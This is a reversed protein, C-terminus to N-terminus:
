FGNTTVRAQRKPDNKAMWTEHDEPMPSYTSFAARHFGAMPNANLQRSVPSQDIASSQSAPDFTSPAESGGFMGKKMGTSADGVKDVGAEQMAQFFGDMRPDSLPGIHGFSVLQGHDRANQDAAQQWLTKYDAARSRLGVGLPDSAADFM